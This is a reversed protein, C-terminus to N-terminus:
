RGWSPWEAAGAFTDELRDRRGSDLVRVSGLGVDIRGRRNSDSVPVHLENATVVNFGLYRFEWWFQHGIAIVNIANNNTPSLSPAGPLLGRPRWAAVAVFAQLVAVTDKARRTQMRNSIKFAIAKGIAGLLGSEFRLHM